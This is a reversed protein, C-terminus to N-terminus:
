ASLKKLQKRKREYEELSACDMDDLNHKRLRVMIYTAYVMNIILLSFTQFSLTNHMDDVVLSSAMLLMELVWLMIGAFALEKHIEQKQYEDREDLVGIFRNLLM